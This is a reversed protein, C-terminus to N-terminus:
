FGFGFRIETKRVHRTIHWKKRWQSHRVAKFCVSEKCLQEVGGDRWLFHTDKAALFSTLQGSISVVQFILHIASCWASFQLARCFPFGFFSLGKPSSGLDHWRRSCRPVGELCKSEEGDTRSRSKGEGWSRIGRGGREDLLMCWKFCQVLIM